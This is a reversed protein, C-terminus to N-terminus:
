VYLICRRYTLSATHTIYIYSMLLSLTLPGKGITRLFFHAWKLCKQCRVREVCDSDECFLGACYLGADGEAESEKGMM